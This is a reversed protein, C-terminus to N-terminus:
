RIPLMIVIEETVPITCLRDWHILFHTTLKVSISKSTTTGKILILFSPLEEVKWLPLLIEIQNLHTKNPIILLLHVLLNVAIVFTNGRLKLTQCGTVDVNDIALAAVLISEVVQCVEHLGVSQPMVELHHLLYM